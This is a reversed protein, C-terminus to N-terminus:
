RKAKACGITTHDCGVILCYGAATLEARAADDWEAPSTNECGYAYEVAAQIQPDFQCVVEYYTGFDHPCGKVKLRAGDPEAGFMRRLQGIYARCEARAQEYYGDRGVQACAEDTPSSGITLEDRM